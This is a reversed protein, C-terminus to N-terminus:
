GMLAATWIPNSIDSYYSSTNKPKEPEPTPEVVGEVEPLKIVPTPICRVHLVEGCWPCYKAKYSANAAELAFWDYQQDNEPHYRLVQDPCEDGHQECTNELQQKATACCTLSFKM